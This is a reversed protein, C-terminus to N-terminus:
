PVPDILKVPCSAGWWHRVLKFNHLNMGGACGYRDEILSGLLQGFFPCIAKNFAERIFIFGLFLLGNIRLAHIGLINTNNLIPM